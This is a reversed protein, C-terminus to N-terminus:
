IQNHYILWGPVKTWLEVADEDKGKEKLGVSM